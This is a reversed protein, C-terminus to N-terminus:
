PFHMVLSALRMRPCAYLCTGYTPHIALIPDSSTPKEPTFSLLPLHKVKKTSMSATRCVHRRFFIKKTYYLHIRNQAKKPNFTGNTYQTFPHVKKEWAPPNRILLYPSYIAFIVGVVINMICTKPPCHLISKILRLTFDVTTIKGHLCHM